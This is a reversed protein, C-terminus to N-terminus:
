HWHLHIRLGDSHAAELEGGHEDPLDCTGWGLLSKTEGSLITILM